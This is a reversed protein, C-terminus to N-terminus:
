GSISAYVASQIGNSESHGQEKDAALLGPVNSMERLTRTWATYRQGLALVLYSAVGPKRGRLGRPGVCEARWMKAAVTTRERRKQAPYVMSKVASRIEHSFFCSPNTRAFVQTRPPIDPNIAKNM